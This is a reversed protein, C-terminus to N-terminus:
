PGGHPDRCRCGDRDTRFQAHIDEGKRAAGHVRGPHPLNHGRCGAGSGEQQVRWEGAGPLVRREQLEKLQYIVMEETDVMEHFGARRLKTTSSFVDYDFGLVFDAFAWSAVQKLPLPQLDHKQVIEAWVDEKDGMWQILSMHRVRGTEMGFH